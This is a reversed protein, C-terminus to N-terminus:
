HSIVRFSGIERGGRATEDKETLDVLYKAVEFNDVYGHVLIVSDWAGNFQNKIAVSCDKGPRPQIHVKHLQHITWFNASLSLLAVLLLLKTWYHKM